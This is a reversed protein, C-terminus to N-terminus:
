FSMSGKSSRTRQYTHIMSVEEFSDAVSYATTHDLVGGDDGDLDKVLALELFAILAEKANDVNTDAIHKIEVETTM